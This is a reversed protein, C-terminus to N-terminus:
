LQGREIKGDKGGGSPGREHFHSTISHGHNGGLDDRGDDCGNAAKPYHFSSGYRWFRYICHGLGWYLYQDLDLELWAPYISYHGSCLDNDRSGIGTARYVTKLDFRNELYEYATYVKLKYYIPVFSVSIIIMALPLGFYFQIFRMGDEYAQGPTSLFTIASAQTAMISLGITWWNDKNGKLYNELSKKGRTKYMGYVAISVLTLFLVLWDLTSM